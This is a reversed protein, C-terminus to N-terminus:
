RAYAGSRDAHASIGATVQSARHLGVLRRLELRRRGRRRRPRVDVLHLAIYSILVWSLQDLSASLCGRIHPLAVNAITTDLGQMINALMISLTIAGRNPVVRCAEGRV